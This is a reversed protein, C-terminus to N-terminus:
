RIPHETTDTRPISSDAVPAAQESRDFPALKRM